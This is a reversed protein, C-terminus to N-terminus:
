DTSDVSVTGVPNPRRLGGRRNRTGLLKSAEGEFHEVTRQACAYEPMHATGYEAFVAIKTDSGVRVRNATSEVHISNAYEGEYADVIEGRATETPTTAGKTPRDGWKPAISKWYEAVEEAKAEKAARVVAAVTASGEIQAEILAALEEADM